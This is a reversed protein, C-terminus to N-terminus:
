RATKLAAALASVNADMLRTYDHGSASLTIPQAGTKATIQRVLAANSHPEAIVIKVGSERM